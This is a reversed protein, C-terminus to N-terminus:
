RGNGEQPCHPELWLAKALESVNKIVHTHRDAYM